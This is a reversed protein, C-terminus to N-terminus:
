WFVSGSGGTAVHTGGRANVISMGVYWWDTGNRTRYRCCRSSACVRWKGLSSKLDIGREGRGERLLRADLFDILENDRVGLHPIHALLIYMNINVISVVSIQVLLIYVKIIRVFFIHLDAICISLVYLPYWYVLLIYVKTICLFLIHLMCLEHYTWIYMNVVSQLLLIYVKIICVFFKCVYKYHM